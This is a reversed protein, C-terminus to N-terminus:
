QEGWDRLEWCLSGAAAGSLVMADRVLTDDEDFMAFLVTALWEDETLGYRYAEWMSDCWGHGLEILSDYGGYSNTLLPEVTALYAREADNWSEQSSFSFGTAATTTTPTPINHGTCATAVIVVGVITAVWKGKSTLHAVPKM